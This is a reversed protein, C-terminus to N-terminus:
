ISLVIVHPRAVSVQWKWQISGDPNLKGAAFDGGGIHTVNWDGETYGAFIVSGDEWIALDQLQGAKGTKEQDIM